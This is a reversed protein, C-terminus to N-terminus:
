NNFLLTNKEFFYYFCFFVLHDENSLSHGSCCLHVKDNKWGYKESIHSLFSGVNDSGCTGLSISEKNLDVLTIRM